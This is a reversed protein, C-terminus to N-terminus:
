TSEKIRDDEWTMRIWVRMGIMRKLVDVDHISTVWIGLNINVYNGDNHPIMNKQYNKPLCISDYCSMNELRSALTHHLSLMIVIPRWM